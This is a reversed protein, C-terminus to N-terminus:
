GGRRFSVRRRLGTTALAVALGVLLLSVVILGAATKQTGTLGTQAKAAAAPPLVGQSGTPAPRAAPSASAAAAADIRFSMQVQKSEGNPPTLTGVVAGSLPAAQQAEADAALLLRITAAQGAPVPGVECRTRGDGASQCGPPPTPVSVGPPLLVELTGTSDVRGTNGLRLDLTTAQGSIDFSVESASLTVGAVPPGPPFLVAFGEEDTAPVGSPLGTTVASVRVSGSLPMRRWADADVRVRVRTDFRAGAAAPWSGCRYTRQGASTCGPTGADTLGIPLTYGLQILESRQGTNTVTVTLAAEFADGAQWYAETLTIDKTSVHVAAQRPGPQNPGSSGATQSPQPHDDPPPDDPPPDVPPPGTTPSPGGAPPETSPPPGTAPETSPAASPEPEGGPSQGDDPEEAVAYWGDPAPSSATRATAQYAPVTAGASAILGALLAGTLARAHRTRSRGRPRHGPEVRPM